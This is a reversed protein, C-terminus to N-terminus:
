PKLSLSLAAQAITLNKNSTSPTRSHISPRSDEVEVTRIAMRPGPPVLYAFWDLGLKELVPLKDLALNFIELHNGTLNCEKLKRLEINDPLCRLLNDSLDLLELNTLEKIRSTISKLRNGALKLVKLTRWLDGLEVPVSELRNGELNLVELCELQGIRVSLRKIQNRSANLRKLQKLELLLKGDLEVLCCNSVDLFAIQLKRFLDPPLQKLDRNVWKIKIGQDEKTVVYDDSHKDKAMGAVKEEM